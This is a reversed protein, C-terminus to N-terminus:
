RGLVEGLANIQDRPDPSVHARQHAHGAVDVPLRGPGRTTWDCRNCTAHWQHTDPDRTITVRAILTTM